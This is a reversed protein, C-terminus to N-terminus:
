DLEDINKNNYSNIINNTIMGIPIQLNVEPNGYPFRLVGMLSGLNVKLVGM